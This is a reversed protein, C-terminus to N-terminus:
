GLGISDLYTNSCKNLCYLAQSFTSMMQYYMKKNGLNEVPIQGESFYTKIKQKATKVSNLGVISGLESTPIKNLCKINERWHNSNTGVYMMNEDIEQLTQIDKENTSTKLEDYNRLMKVNQCSNKATMNDFLDEVLIEKLAALESKSRELKSLNSVEKAISVSNKRSKGRLKRLSERTTVHKDEIRKEYETILNNLPILTKPDAELELIDLLDLGNELSKIDESKNTTALGFYEQDGTITISNNEIKMEVGSSIHKEDISLNLDKMKEDKLAEISENICGPTMKVPRSQNNKERNTRNPIAVNFNIDAPNHAGVNGIKDLGFAKKGTLDRLCSEKHIYGIYEWFQYEDPSYVMSNSKSNKLRGMSSAIQFCLDSAKCAGTVLAQSLNVFISGYKQTDIQSREINMADSIVKLSKNQNNDSYDSNPKAPSNKNSKTNEAQNSKLQKRVTSFLEPARQPIFNQSIEFEDVVDKCLKLSSFLKKKPLFKKLSNSKKIKIESRFPNERITKYISPSCDFTQPQRRKKRKPRKNFLNKTKKRFQGHINEIHEFLNVQKLAQGCIDCLTVELSLGPISKENLKSTIEIDIELRLM